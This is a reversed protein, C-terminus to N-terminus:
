RVVDFSLYGLIDGCSRGMWRRWGSQGNRWMLLDVSCMRGKKRKSGGNEM